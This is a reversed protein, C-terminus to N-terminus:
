PHMIITFMINSYAEIILAEETHPKITGDTVWHEFVTSGTVMFLPVTLALIIAVIARANM